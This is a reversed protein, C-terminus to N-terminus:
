SNSGTGLSHQKGVGFEFVQHQLVEMASGNSAIHDQSNEYAAKLIPILEAAIGSSLYTRIHSNHPLYQMSTVPTKLMHEGSCVASNLEKM